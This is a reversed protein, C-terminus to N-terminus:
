LAGLRAPIKSLLKTTVGAARGAIPLRGKVEQRWSRGRDLDDPIFRVGIWDITPAAQAKSKGIANRIGGPALTHCKEIELRGLLDDDLGGRALRTEVFDAGTGEIDDPAPM